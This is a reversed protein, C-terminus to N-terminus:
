KEKEDKKPAPAPSPAPHPAAPPAHAQQPPQPPPPAPAHQPQPPPPPAPTAHQQPPSPPPPAPAHQPQPPPPPAPTAHQQPPPPPPAPTAHQQPQPPPPSAPTHQPQPPPPPTPTAHQQPAPTPTAQPQQPRPPEGPRTPPAVREGELRPPPTRGRPTLPPLGPKAHDGPTAGHTSAISPGPAKPHEADAGSPRALTPMDAFRTRGTPGSARAAPPAAVPAVSASALKDASVKLAARQVAHSRVFDQAPVVTAFRRHMWGGNPDQGRDPTNAGLREDRHQARQWQREMAEDRVRASANLRRYYDHNASYPPVYAENPGLPFWGVPGADAAGLTVGIEVDGIFAVLAPAYVAATDRQPPVWYWRDGRMAWRGYHYPAFGWPQDDVWTWGWRSDYIWRGTRYPEWGSPVERPSWVDGYEPDHTWAGYAALDEYGTVSVSVAAPPRDYAVRRDRDAWAAPMPPPDTKITYLQPASGDGSIEGVEGARVALVQGDATQIQAAGNRVGLRTADVTSGAEIYYDGQQVLTITGRPTAIKYPHRTDYDYTKIDLRGRDLQLATQSDDIAVLDLETGSDLRM